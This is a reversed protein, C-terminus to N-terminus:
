EGEIRDDPHLVIAVLYQEAEDDFTLM